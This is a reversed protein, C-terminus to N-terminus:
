RSLTVKIEFDIPSTFNPNGSRPMVNPRRGRGRQMGSTRGGIGDRRPSGEARNTTPRNPKISTFKLTIIGNGISTLNIPFYKDGQKPIKMEYVLKGAKYGLGIKVGNKDTLSYAGLPFNDDNIVLYESNNLKINNIMKEIIKGGSPNRNSKVFREPTAREKKIPYQIGITEGKENGPEFWITFGMKLIKIINGKDATSLSLYLNDSNNLVGVAMKEDKFYKLKGNWDNLKGDIKIPQNFKQSVISYSSCGSLIFLVFFAFVSIKKM